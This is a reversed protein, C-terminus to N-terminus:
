MLYFMSHGVVKFICIFLAHLLNFSFNVQLSTLFGTKGESTFEYADIKGTVEVDTKGLERGEISDRIVYKATESCSEESVTDAPQEGM